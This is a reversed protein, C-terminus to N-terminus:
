RGITWRRDSVPPGIDDVATSSNASDVLLGTSLDIRDCRENVLATEPHDELRLMVRSWVLAQNGPGYSIVVQDQESGAQDALDNAVLERGVYRLAERLEAEGLLGPNRSEAAAVLATASPSGAGVGEMDASILTAVAGDSSVAFRQISGVWTLMARRYANCVAEPGTCDVADRRLTAIMGGNGRTFRLRNHISFEAQGGDPLLRLDTITVPM